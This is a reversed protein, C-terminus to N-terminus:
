RSPRRRHSSTASSSSPALQSPRSSSSSAAAPRARRAAHEAGSRTPPRGERALSPRTGAAPARAAAPAAARGAVASARAAARSRPRSEPAAAPAGAGELPAEHRGSPRRRAASPRRATPASRGARTSRSAARSARTRSGAGPLEPLAPLHARGPARLEPVLEGRAPARAAGLRPDRARARAQRRPVGAPAPDLLRDHGRVPFLSAATACAVLVPDEIRRRADFYTWAVLALWLVVLFLILLNVALNLGDNTIGFLALTMAFPPLTTLTRDPKLPLAARVPLGLGFFVLIVIAVVAAVLGMMHLLESRAGRDLPALLYDSGARKHPAPGRDPRERGDDHRMGVVVAGACAHTGHVVQPSCKPRRLGDIVASGIEKPSSRLAGSPGSSRAAMVALALPAQAIRLHDDEVEGGGVAVADTQFVNSTWRGSGRRTARADARVVHDLLVARDVLEDRRRAAAPM